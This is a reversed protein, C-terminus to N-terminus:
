ALSECPPGPGGSPLLCGPRRGRSVRGGEGPRVAAAHAASARRRGPWIGQGWRASLGCGRDGPHVM